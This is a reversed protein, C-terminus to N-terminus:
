TPNGEIQQILPWAVLPAVFELTVRPPFLAEKVPLRFYM